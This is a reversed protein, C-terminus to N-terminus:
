LQLVATPLANPHAYVCTRTDIRHTSLHLGPQAFRGNLNLRFVMGEGPVTRSAQQIRHGVNYILVFHKTQHM